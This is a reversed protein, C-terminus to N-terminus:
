RLLILKKAESFSGSQLRYFYVGSTLYSANFKITYNGSQQEKNVLNAVERGLIDYVKLQVFGKERLSYSIKTIQNFPNPYNQSLEFRIPISPAAEIDEGMGDVLIKQLNSSLDNYDFRYPRGAIYVFQGKGEPKSWVGSGKPSDFSETSVYILESYNQTLTTDFLSGFTNNSILNIDTLDTNVSKMDKITAYATEDWNIGLYDQLDEYIFDQGRETILVINGGENLYDNIALNLWTRIDNTGYDSLWIISSYNSITLNSLEGNGIM